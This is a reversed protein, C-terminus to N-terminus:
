SVFFYTLAAIAYILLAIRPASFVDWRPACGTAPAALSKRGQGTSMPYDTLQATSHAVHGRREAPSCNRAKYSAM